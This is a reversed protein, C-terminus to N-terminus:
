QEEKRSYKDMWDIKKQEPKVAKRELLYRVFLYGGIGFLDPTLSRVFSDKFLFEWQSAVVTMYQQPNKMYAAMDVHWKCFGFVVIAFGIMEAFLFLIVTIFAWLPGSQGVGKARVNNRYAFYIALFIGM